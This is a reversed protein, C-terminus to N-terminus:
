PVSRVLSDVVRMAEPAGDLVHLDDLTLIFLEDIDTAIAAAIEAVVAAAGTPQGGAALRQAQEELANPFVRRVAAVINGVFALPATDQRDLSLWALSIQADDCWDVALTSKGYGAPATVLTVDYDLADELMTHLRERRITDARRRPPVLKPLFRRQA